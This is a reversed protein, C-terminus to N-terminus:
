PVTLEFAFSRVTLVEYAKREGELKEAGGDDWIIIRQEQETRGFLSGLYQPRASDIVHVTLTPNFPGFWEESGLEAMAGM